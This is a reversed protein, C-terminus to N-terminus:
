STENIYCEECAWKIKKGQMIKRSMSIIINCYYCHTKRKAIGIIERKDDKDIKNNKYQNHKNTM